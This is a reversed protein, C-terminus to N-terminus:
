IDINAYHGKIGERTTGPNSDSLNNGLKTKLKEQVMQSKLDGGSGKKDWKGWLRFDCWCFRVLLIRKRCIRGVGM